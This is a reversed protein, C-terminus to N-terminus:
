SSSMEEMLVVAGIALIFIFQKVFFNVYWETHKAPHSTRAYSYGAADHTICLENDPIMTPMNQYCWRSLVIDQKVDLKRQYHPLTINYLTTKCPHNLVPPSAALLQSKNILIRALNTANDEEDEVDDYDQPQTQETPNNISLIVSTPVFSKNMTCESKHMHCPVHHKMLQIIIDASKQHAKIDHDKAIQQLDARSLQQLSTEEM